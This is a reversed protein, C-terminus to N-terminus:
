APGAPTERDSIADCCGTGRASHKTTVAQSDSPQMEITVTSDDGEDTGNVSESSSQSEAAKARLFSVTAKADATAAQPKGSTALYREYAALAGPWDKSQALTLVRNFDAGCRLSQARQADNASVLLATTDPGCANAQASAGAAALAFIVSAILKKM